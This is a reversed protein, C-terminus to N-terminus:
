LGPILDVRLTALRAWVPEAFRTRTLEALSTWKLEAFCSGYSGEEEDWRRGRRGTLERRQAQGPEPRLYAVRRCCNPFDTRIDFM